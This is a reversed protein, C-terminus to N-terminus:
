TGELDRLLALEGTPHGAQEVERPGRGGDDHRQQGARRGLIREADEGDGDHARCPSDGCQGDDAPLGGLRPDAVERRRATEHDCGDEHRHGAALLRGRAEVEEEDDDVGGVEVGRALRHGVEDAARHDEARREEVVVVRRLEGEVALHEDHDRGIEHEPVHDEGALVAQHVHALM